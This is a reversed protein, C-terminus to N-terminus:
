AGKAGGDVSQDERRRRKRSRSEYQLFWSDFLCVFSFVRFHSFSKGWPLNIWRDPDITRTRIGFHKTMFFFFVRIKKRNLALEKAKIKANIKTFNIAFNHSVFFFVSSYASVNPTLSLSLTYRLLDNLGKIAAEYSETAM